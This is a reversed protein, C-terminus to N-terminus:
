AALTALKAKVQNVVATFAPMDDIAMDSLV